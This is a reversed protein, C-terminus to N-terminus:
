KMSCKRYPPPPSSATRPPRLSLSHRLMNLGAESDRLRLRLLLHALPLFRLRLNDGEREGKCHKTRGKKKAEGPM